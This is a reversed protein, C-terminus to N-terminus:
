GRARSKSKKGSKSKGKSKGRMARSFMRASYAALMVMLGLLMGTTAGSFFAYAAIGVYEGMTLASPDPTEQNTTDNQSGTNPTAPNAAETM